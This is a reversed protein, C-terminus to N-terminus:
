QRPRAAWNLMVIIPPVASSETTDAALTLLFRKGDGAVDWGGTRLPLKFLPQPIGSRFVPNTSVDVSMVSDQRDQFFLEKGDARWRLRFSGLGDKSVQQKLGGPRNPTSAAAPDPSTFPRVYVENRGSEDSMYAIWRSDPSFSGFGENFETRLWPVPQGQGKGALPYPLLWIDVKTKPDSSDFALFHGDRSWSDPRAFTAEFKLLSVADGGNDSSKRLLEFKQDLNSYFAIHKGDPSWVPDRSAGDFTFRTSIGPSNVLWIDSKDAAGREIAVRTGDPSLSPAGLYQAPDGLQGLTKGQRNVWTLRREDEAGAATRYILTGSASVSFTGMINAYNTVSEAIPVAEGTLALKHVDFPQAMLTNERLFLIHGESGGASAAYAAPFSSNLLRRTDQQDPKADLSGVYIGNSRDLNTRRLYLFHRGDPLFVPGSHGTEQRAADLTTVPSAEGGAAAVKLLGARASFVIVNNENWTGGAYGPPADCITQAPGGSAEVRKLQAGVSFAVFRSDPSWFSFPVNGGSLDPYVTKADLTELPRVWLSTVSSTARSATYAIKRGDPSISLCCSFRGQAPPGIELRALEAAPPQERFHVFSLAALAMTVLAAVGPWLWGLRSGAPTTVAAPEVPPEGLLRKADGIDRLRQKPDKQLCEELLRRAQRPVKGLDPQKHIVAALIEAADEGTFLREGTLLEYLVVGFSWIDARKDVAKGRAQEPAMYAATGLIVGIRTVGLTLTPSHEPDDRPVTPDEIAKALGFDLLKVTGDPTVKINAPKLDRHIVGREHAYELAEAIQLAYSLATELPLPSSLTGGEVLEMVIARDEVGYIQAINRHNLSALMEAERQFRAM